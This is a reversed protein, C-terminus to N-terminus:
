LKFLIGFKVNLFSVPFSQNGSHNVTFSYNYATSFAINTANSVRYGLMIGGHVYCQSYVDNSSNKDIKIIEQNNGSYTPISQEKNFLISFTAGGFLSANFRKYEFLKKGISIPISVVTQYSTMNIQDDSVVTDYVNTFTDNYVKSWATDGQNDVVPIIEYGSSM